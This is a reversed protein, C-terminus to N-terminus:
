SNLLARRVGRRKGVVEDTTHAMKAVFNGIKQCHSM